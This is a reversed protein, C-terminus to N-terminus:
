RCAESIAEPAVSKYKYVLQVATDTIREEAGGGFGTFGEPVRTSDFMQALCSDTAAMHMELLDRDVWVVTADSGRPGREVEEVGALDVIDGEDDFRCWAQRHELWHLSHGHAIAQALEFYRKGGIRGDFTRAFVLRQAGSLAKPQDREWPEHWEIRPGNGGGYVLGCSPKDYPNGQWSPLDDWSGALAGAPVLVSHIFM